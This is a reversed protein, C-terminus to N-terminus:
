SLAGKRGDKREKGNFIRNRPERQAVLLIVSEGDM